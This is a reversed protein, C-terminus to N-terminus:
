QNYNKLIDVFSNLIKATLGWIICDNFQYFYTLEYSKLFNYSRGNEILEYPFNEDRKIEIDSRYVTYKCSLVDELPIAILKEMEENPEIDYFNIGTIQGVFVYMLLGNFNLLYNSEGFVSINKTDLNCEEVTERIVADLPKEKNEIHGGIFSVDGSQNVIKSRKQFVIHAVGDIDILAIFVAVKNIKKISEPKHNEFISKINKITDEYDNFM